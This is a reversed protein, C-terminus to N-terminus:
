DERRHGALETAERTGSAKPEIPFGAARWADFGGALPKV